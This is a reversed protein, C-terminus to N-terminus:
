SKVCLGAQSRCYINFFKKKDIDIGYPNTLNKNEQLVEDSVSPNNIAISSPSQFSCIYLHKTDGVIGAPSVKHKLSRATSDWERPIDYDIILQNLDNYFFKLDNLVEML